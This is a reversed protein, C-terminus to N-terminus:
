RALLLLGVAVGGLVVGVLFLSVFGTRDPLKMLPMSLHDQTFAITCVAFVVLAVLCGLRTPLLIALTGFVGMGVFWIV